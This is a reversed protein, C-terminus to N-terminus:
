LAFDKSLNNDKKILTYIIEVLEISEQWVNIEEVKSFNSM